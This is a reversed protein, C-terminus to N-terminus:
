QELITELQKLLPVLDNKATEWLRRPESKAFNFILTNSMKIINQWPIASHSNKFDTPIHKAAEGMIVYTYTVADILVPTNYFQEETVDMLIRLIRRIQERIHGIRTESENM